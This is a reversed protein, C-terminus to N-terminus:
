HQVVATGFPFGAASITVQQAGGLLEEVRRTVYSSLDSFRVFPSKPDAKGRLAELLALTFAGHGWEEKEYAAEGGQSSALVVTRLSSLRDNSAARAPIKGSHCTDVFLFVSRARLKPGLLNQLQPVSLATRRPDDLKLKPGSGTAITKGDPSWDFPIIPLDPDQLVAQTVGTYPNWLRVRGENGVSALM